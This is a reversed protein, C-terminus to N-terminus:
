VKVQAVSTREDEHGDSGTWKAQLKGEPLENMADEEKDLKRFQVYFCMGAVFALIAVSAYNWVLNPDRSLPTWAQGLAAAIAVMFLAVAQVMSRMSKPAKSYAYELSTISAFVESLAVLVYSGAQSWVNIDAEPCKIPNGDADPQDLDGTPFKGCISKKYMYHQVIAAWIMASASVFFGATIKKIPTFRIGAKRLSPYIFFDNIPIFILLAFPNLNSLIDNPVGYRKM